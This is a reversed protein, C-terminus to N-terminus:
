CKFTKDRQVNYVYYILHKNDWAFLKGEYPNYTLQVLYQFPVAFRIKTTTFAVNSYIDYVIDIYSQQKNYYQVGYFVGYAIFAQSLGTPNYPLIWMKQTDLTDPNIKAVLFNKTYEERYLLWLGNEDISFDYWSSQPTNYLPERHANIEVRQSESESILDIRIITNKNHINYIFSGQYVVHNVGSYPYPLTIIRNPKDNFLDTESNYEYLLSGTVHRTVYVKQAGNATKPMPDKFWAGFTFNDQKLLVPTGIFSFVCGPFFQIQHM